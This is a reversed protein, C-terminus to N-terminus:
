CGSQIELPKESFDGRAHGGGILFNFHFPFCKKCFGWHEEGGEM